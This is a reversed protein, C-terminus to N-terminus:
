LVMIVCVFENQLCHLPREHVERPNELDWYLCNEQNVMDNIRFYVEDRILLALDDNAEFIAKM